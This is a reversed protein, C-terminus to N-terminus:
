PFEAPISSRKVAGVRSSMEDMMARFPKSFLISGHDKGPEIFVRADSGLKALAIKLRHVAGNLYFNDDDGMIVTIKGALKPGLTPWERQLKDVLDYRRWAKVVGPNIRGTKRDWLPVPRGDMGRPGFVAEFSHMQGGPGIVDEMQAFDRLLLKVNGDDRMIPWPRGTKDKFFNEDPDYLNLRSFDHFDVSDPSTSWVGGFYDPHNIQVWLSSWGGSSHGTLLRARAEPILRFEKELYPILEEVLATGWPGNNDSDAYVHHGLPCVADLGIRVIPEPSIGLMTAYIGAERHNGGFGPIVYLASFKRESEKAYAEPLIVMARLFIERGHFHSLLHSRVKVEKALPLNMKSDRSPVLQDIKLRIVQGATADIERKVPKSFLNGEATGSHPVDPNTHMVAQIVYKNAPLDSLAYPFGDPKEFRREEGPKWDRVDEGFVPQRSIWSHAKRPESDLKDSLFFIVRGTFPESRVAPDFQVTFALKTAPPPEAAVAVTSLALFFIAALRRRIV